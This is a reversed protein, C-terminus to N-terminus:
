EEALTRLIEKGTGANPEDLIISRLFLDPTLYIDYLVYGKFATDEVLYLFGDVIKFGLHFFMGIQALVPQEPCVPFIRLKHNLLHNDIGNTVPVIADLARLYLYLHEVVTEHELSWAFQGAYDARIIDTVSM